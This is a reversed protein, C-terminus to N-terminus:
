RYPNTLDVDVPKRRRRPAPAHKPQPEPDSRGAGSGSRSDPKPARDAESAREQPKEGSGAAADADDAKAGADNAALDPATPPQPAPAAVSPPAEPPRQPAASASPEDIRTAYYAAGGGAALLAVLLVGFLPGRSRGPAEPLMGSLGPSHGTTPTAGPLAMAGVSVTGMSLPNSPRPHSSESRAVWGRVAERQQTIEHGIVDTIYASLERGTAVKGTATAARELADAFKACSAFRQNQDRALAKMVVANVQPSVAPNLRSLDPIPESLIRSLTAADNDSKFLRRSALAEWLVVGSSFVDARRDIVPNAVAQEPAMYAIKGKLQGVRTASLRSAARAVGFDTIRAIGDLGVLVNQPSVDRHVLETPNGMHDRLEHAAHLGALMDLTIRLGIEPPMPRGRASARALLRALTDGEIYEMVLYYGRDSAGVELIPVVNPHHIGAALRAEDLFMEVFEEESQLHPHLRKIAVFRQFGGVGALRALYVTAMGGSAIEAVLDYRDIRQRGVADIDLLKAAM